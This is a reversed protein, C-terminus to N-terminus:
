PWGICSGYNKMPQGIEAQIVDLREKATVKKGDKIKKLLRASKSVSIATTFIVTEKPTKEKTAM